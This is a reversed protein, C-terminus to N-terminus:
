KKSAPARSRPAPRRYKQTRADSRPPPTACAAAGSLPKSGSNRPVRRARGVRPMRPAPRLVPPLSAARQLDVARWLYWAAISRHPAWREGFKALAKPKPMLRLGYALRFGHRVGFDDIPLVDRRGLHFMLLMQVTWTGIGRVQTLREIIATDPQTALEDMSPVVGSLSKDALDRLAMLKSASFGAGRIAREPTALLQQPTPFLDDPGYLAIFRRLITAAAAGHLQQHAIARALHEFPSGSLLPKLDCRPAAAILQALVPDSSALSEIARALAPLESM